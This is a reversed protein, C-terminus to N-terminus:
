ALDGALSAISAPDLEARAQYRPHDVVVAAAFGGRTLKAQAAPPLDVKLYHVATTRGKFLEPNPGRVRFREGDIELHICDDIGAYEVLMKEREDKDSIEIFVTLSLQGDKPLLDNYTAIEHAIGDEATIRETRLMEQIQMLASDRNEFVGSMHEGLRVRRPKKAEIVRARFHPRIQEYDGLPLIESREIPKMPM